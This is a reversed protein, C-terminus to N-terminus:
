KSWYCAPQLMRWTDKSFVFSSPLLSHFYKVAETQDFNSILHKLKGLGRNNNWAKYGEAGAEKALHLAM